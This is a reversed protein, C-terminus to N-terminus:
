RRESGVTTNVNGPQILRVVIIKIGQVRRASANEPTVSRHGIYVDGRYQACVGSQHVVGGDVEAGVGQAGEMRDLIVIIGAMYRVAHSMPKTARKM